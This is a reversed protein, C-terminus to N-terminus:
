RKYIKCFSYTTIRGVKIKYGERRAKSIFKNIDNQFLYLDEKLYPLVQNSVINMLMDYGNNKNLEVILEEKSHGAQIYTKAYLLM